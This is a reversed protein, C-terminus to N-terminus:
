LYPRNWHFWNPVCQPVTELLCTRIFCKPRIRTTKCHQSQEILGVGPCSMATPIWDVVMVEQQRLSMQSYTDKFCSEWISVNACNGLPKTKELLCVCLPRWESFFFLYCHVLSFEIFLSLTEDLSVSLLNGRQLSLWNPPPVLIRSDKSVNVANRVIISYLLCLSSFADMVLNFRAHLPDHSQSSVTWKLM